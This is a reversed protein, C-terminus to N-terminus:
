HSKFITDSIIDSTFLVSITKSNCKNYSECVIFYLSETTVPQNNKFQKLLNLLKINIVELIEFLYFYIYPM